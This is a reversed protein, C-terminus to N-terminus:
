RQCSRRTITFQCNSVLGLASVFPRKCSWRSITKYANVGAGLMEKRITFPKCIKSYVALSSIIILAPLHKFQRDKPCRARSQANGDFHRLHPLFKSCLCELTKCSKYLCDFETLKPAASTCRQLTKGSGLPSGTLSNNSPFYATTLFNFGFCLTTKNRVLATLTM